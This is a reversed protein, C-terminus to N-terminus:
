KKPEFKPVPRTSPRTPPATPRGGFLGPGGEMVAKVVAALDPKAKVTATVKAGDRKVVADRFAEAAPKLLEAIVKAERQIQSSPTLAERATIRGYDLMVAGDKADEENLFESTLSLDLEGAKGIDLTALARRARLPPKFLLFM